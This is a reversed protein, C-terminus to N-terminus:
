PLKCVPVCVMICPQQSTNRCASACADFTGSRAKCWDAKGTECERTGAIWKGGSAACSEAVQQDAETACAAIVLVCAAAFLRAIM